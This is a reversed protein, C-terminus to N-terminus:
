AGANRWVRVILAIRHVGLTIMALGLVVGPVIRLGAQPAYALLRVAVITGFVVFGAALASRLILM